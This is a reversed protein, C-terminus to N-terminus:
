RMYLRECDHYQGNRVLEKWYDRINFICPSILKALLNELKTVERSNKQPQSPSLIEGRDAFYIIPSLYKVLKSDVNEDDFWHEDWFGMGEMFGMCWSLLDSKRKGDQFLYGFCPKFRNTDLEMTIHDKLETLLDHIGELHAEILFSPVTGERGFLFPLYEGPMVPEPGVLTATIVGHVQEFTYVEDGPFQDLLERLKKMDCLKM